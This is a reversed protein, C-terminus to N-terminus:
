IFRTDLQRVKPRKHTLKLFLPVTKIVTTQVAERTMVNHSRAKFICSYTSPPYTVPVAHVIPSPEIDIAAPQAQNSNDVTEAVTDSPLDEPKLPQVVENIAPLVPLHEEGLAEIEDTTNSSTQEICLRKSPLNEAVKDEEVADVEASSTEIFNRKGTVCESDLVEEAAETDDTKEVYIEKEFFPMAAGPYASQIISAVNESLHNNNPFFVMQLPILRVVHRSCPEKETRVREFIAKVLELPCLDSRMVKIMVIGKVKTDVSMVNQTASHKQKRVQAIEQALMDKVSDTGGSSSEHQTSETDDRIAMGLSEIAQNLLNVMEKSTERERAADCTGMIAGHGKCSSTDNNSGGGGGRGGRGGGRGGRGGGPGKWNKGM